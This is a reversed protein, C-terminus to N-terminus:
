QQRMQQQLNVNHETPTLISMGKQMHLPRGATYSCEGPCVLDREIM